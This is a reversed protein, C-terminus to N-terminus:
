VFLKGWCMRKQLVFNDDLVIEELVKKESLIERFLLNLLHKEGFWQKELVHREGLANKEWFIM